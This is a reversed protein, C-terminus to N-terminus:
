ASHPLTEGLLRSAFTLKQSLHCVLCAVERSAYFTIAPAAPIAVRAHETPQSSAAEEDAGTYATTDPV